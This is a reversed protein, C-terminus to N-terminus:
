QAPVVEITALQHADAGADSGRAVRLRQGTDRDYLGVILRYAGPPADAPILLAHEDDVPEGPVFQTFAHLGNVPDGDAQAVLRGDADLLQLFVAYATDVPAAVAWELPVAVTAGAEARPAPSRYALSIGGEFTVAARGVVEAQPATYLALGSLGQEQYLVRAAHRELWWGPPNTPQQLPTRYTLLWIRQYPATLAAMEADLADQHFWGLHYPIELDPAYMDLMGEQWIYGVILLDGPRAQEGLTTALARVDEEPPAVDAQATPLALAWGVMLAVGVPWVWRRLRLLGLAALLCLPPVTYLLFRPAMFAVVYRQILFGAAIPLVALAALLRTEPEHRRMCAWATPVLLAPVAVLAATSSARPGAALASVTARVYAWLAWAERDMPVNQAGGWATRWTLVIWPLLLAGIAANALLWRRLDRALARRAEPAHGASLWEFALWAGQASVLLIAYYHAALALAMALVYIPWAWRPAHRQGQLHRAWVYAGFLACLTVFPYAKAERSYYISIPSLALLLAALLGAAPSQLWRGWLYLIPLILLGCLVSFLRLNFASAGFLRIWLALALRHAPPDTDNTSRSMEMIREPHAAFYANNGEDWWLPSRDLAPIRLAAGLLIIAALAVLPWRTHRVDAVSRRAPEIAAANPGHM